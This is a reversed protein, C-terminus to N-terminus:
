RPQPTASVSAAELVQDAVWAFTPALGDALSWRPEWGLAERVFTNDSSRGRVGQPARLDHTRGLEVGAIRAIVDALENISVMEDSGINVPTSVSSDMLTRVGDICDDVYLFSRTQEGDGWIEITTDGQLRAHAVKRCLSAPVKERGGTWTGHPGYVNHFRAVRTEIGFDESFHRCMRESFLKEWGYGDEPDAPYVEDECLGTVDPRDQRQAPYVCASSAFFLRSVGAAVSAELLHGTSLVSLMCRAKNHEIFGMGGMDCALNYVHDCSAVADRCTQPDRLDAVVNDAQPHQQWWTAFPAWDVVRVDHGDGLLSRVLHGGIFGGGGAVLVRM